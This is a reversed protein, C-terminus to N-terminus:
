KEDTILVADRVLVGRTTALTKGDRSWAFGTMLSDKFETIQKAPGGEFPQSWINTVNNNNVTYMISKSDSSWHASPLVTGGLPLEFIKVPEGGDVSIVALRNPPAFSDGSTPFLYVIYKGDPSFKAGLGVRNILRVPAGGDIGVKWLTLKGADLSSYVVWKDDASIAPNLDVVGDTLRRPNNGNIDMRWINRKGERSSAFVIFRGDGSVDPSLNQGANLTLQKRDEGNADMLWIDFSGSENSVFVLRGDPTWSVSSGASGFFGVNGTPLQVARKADGESALWINVLGSTQITSFKSADTTLSISRYGSLDNTIRRTEGGPYSLLWVQAGSAADGAIVLLGSMDPLWEVRSTFRWPTSPTLDTEKGGAVAFTFVRCAEGIRGVSAAVLKGDPSWAPGSFFLPTFQEPAKRTTLVRESSGNTNAIILASEGENPFNGRLFVFQNGDPSFSVLSDIAELIKVPTGGLAPVRYLTGKDLDVKNAYYVDNGDRSFAIGFFGVPAPPVIVKDNAISVQRIWLSQKGADSLTYVLYKGDPSLISDIVKGSNTLRTIRMSQFPAAKGKSWWKYGGVAAGILLVALGIAVAVAVTASRAVAPQPQTTTAPRDIGGTVIPAPGGTPLGPPKLGTATAQSGSSELPDPAGQGESREKQAAFDLQKKLSRLDGLLERASQYREERDKRLTKRIIWDLESPLARIAVLPPPDRDLISVILDSPTDGKFPMTGSLMEYLVVGLSWIDTRADLELGRSQEPSMYATTGMVVGTGTDVQLMTPLSTDISTKPKGTLKALGFDVVKVYGDSRLMINDPKIDRHVIGAQHAAALASAIQIALELVEDIRLPARSERQRLTEGEVYEAAIFRRNEFSGVEYITLINPHNLASAARAEREFRALRDPDNTFSSPLLKLAVKRGLRNDEALYVEGMGGRGLTSLIRYSGLVQSARLGSANDVIIGAAAEYAPSDIFEGTQEYSSLLSEVESRLEDDGPCAQDLFPARAHPERELAAHFIGKIKQWREPTM